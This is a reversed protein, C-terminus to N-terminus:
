LQSDGRVWRHLRHSYTLYSAPYDEYLVVDTVLAARGHAGEFLDHSLLANEPVRGELSREFAAVDYIGKGVYTGEGFLDQYVDSVARTYLDVGRDRSYIRSFWSAGASTPTLEVRPQLVTYGAVVREGAADFEAHNLPHALTGVLRQAAARPLITDADLTIVYRIPPLLDLDGVRVIYSTEEEGLLLRNFEVLKGRKREWGMWQGEAPNWQRCRHFLYFPGGPDDGHRRNLAEIGERARAILREDDPMHEQPADSFDTLLAFGLHPDTNGLYHRELQQLLSDVEDANSLLAPIVVLSAYEAPIGPDAPGPEGPEHFGMKPLVRPPVLRTVAMNVLNTAVVLAPPLTFLVIGATQLPTAGAARGYALLAAVVALSLLGIAGLYTALAHDLLWRGLRVRPAVRYAVALELARRGRDQLYYGVHRARLPVDEVDGAERALRVVQEAIGEETWDSGTALQEVVKRYRDRTGFDMREYAGAPDDRLVEEVRSVSEFFSDWDQTAITRLSRICNGVLSANEPGEPPWLALPSDFGSPPEMEVARALIGALFELVGLRLMTPLAWLEGMTLLAASQYARVFGLLRGMELRGDDRKLLERALAYARPYGELALTDLKPLRRYYGPPLNQRVQRVGQRVIHDNDLLWEATGTVVEQREAERHYYAIVKELWAELLDLRRLLSPSRGPGPSAGYRRALDLALSELGSDQDAAHSNNTM